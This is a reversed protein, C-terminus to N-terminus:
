NLIYVKVTRRGFQIAEDYSDMAVDIRHGVIDGGTDDAVAYGYGEVYVETGLPIVNPDVSVYGRRLAHGRATYSGSEQSTYATAEMDITKKYSSPKRSKKFTGHKTSSLKSWTTADLIGTEILGHHRQFRLLAEKTGSGFVGDISGPSFGSDELKSQLEEIQRGRDGFRSVEVTRTNRSAQQGEFQKQNELLARMTEKGVRGDPTLGHEKQFVLVAYETNNGFVGDATDLLYGQAVLLAQLEEVEKGRDGRGSTALATVMTCVMLLIAILTIKKM